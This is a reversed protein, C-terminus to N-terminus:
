FSEIIDKNLEKVINVALKVAAEFDCLAAICHPTHIYRVPVGIVICAAANECTHYAEGNTGGGERVGRQVPINYKEAISLAFKQFRPNTVMSVDIHRLMPGHKLRTQMAYPEAVTDDAPCGEFCIVADPELRKAAVRAGRAGIEEQSSLVGMVDVGLEDNELEKLSEIVAACGIRCDFAKGMFIGTEENFECVTSFVVPDAEAIEYVRSCEEPTSAGVDVSLSSFDKADPKDAYHPPVSGIMGNVLEGKENKVTVATAPLCSPSICGLPVFRLTGDPKASHIMLGVEDSHADLVVLPKDGDTKRPTIYLNRMRDESLQAFSAYKSATKVVDDEFGSPGFSDSLEAIM